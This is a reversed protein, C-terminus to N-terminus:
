GTIASSWCGLPGGSFCLGIIMCLFSFSVRSNIKEHNDCCVTNSTPMYARRHHISNGLIAAMSWELLNFAVYQRPKHCEEKINSTLTITLQCRYFPIWQSVLIVHTVM